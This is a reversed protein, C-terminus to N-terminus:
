ILLSNLAENLEDISASDGKEKVSSLCYSVHDKVIEKRIASLESEVAKLQTLIQTSDAGLESMRIVSQLHGQAKAERALVRKKVQPNHIHHVRPAPIKLPEHVVITKM